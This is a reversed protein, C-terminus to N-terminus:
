WLGIVFDDGLRKAFSDESENIHINYFHEKSTASFLSIQTMDGNIGREASTVKHWTRFSKIDSILINDTEINLSEDKRTVVKKITIMKANNSM